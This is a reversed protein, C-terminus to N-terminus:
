REGRKAMNAQYEAELKASEEPTAPRRMALDSAHAEGDTRVGEWFGFARLKTLRMAPRADAFEWVAWVGPAWKVPEAEVKAPESAASPTLEEPLRVRPHQARFDVLTWRQEGDGGGTIVDWSTGLSVIIDDRDSPQEKTGNSWVWRQGVALEIGHVTPAKPTPEPNEPKVDRHAVRLELTAAFRVAEALKDRLDTSEAELEAVRREAAEARTIAVALDNRVGILRGQLEGATDLHRELADVLAEAHHARKFAREITMGEWEPDSLHALPPTHRRNWAEAAKADDGPGFDRDPGRDSPPGIVECVGCRVAARGVDDSSVWVRSEMDAADHTAGCFPCPKLEPTM